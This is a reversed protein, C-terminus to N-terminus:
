WSRMPPAQAAAAPAAAPRRGLLDDFQQAAATAAAAAAGTSGGLGFVHLLHRHADVCAGIRQDDGRGLLQELLDLLQDFLEILGGLQLRGLRDFGNAKVLNRRRHHLVGQDSQHAIRDLEAREVLM